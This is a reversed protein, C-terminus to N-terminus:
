FISGLLSDFIMHNFADSLLVRAVRYFGFLAYMSTVVYALCSCYVAHETSADFLRKLAAAYLCWAAVTGLATSAVLIFAFGAGLNLFIILASLAYLITYPLTAAAFIPFVEGVKPKKESGVFKFFLSPIFIFLAFWVSVHFLPEFVVSGLSLAGSLEDFFESRIESVSPLLGGMVGLADRAARAMSTVTRWVTAYMLLFMSIPLLALYVIAEPTGIESTKIATAPNKVFHKLFGIAATATTNATSVTQNAEKVDSSAGCGPCFKSDEQLQNGCSVCFKNM